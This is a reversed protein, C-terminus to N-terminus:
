GFEIYSQAALLTAANTPEALFAAAVIVIGTRLLGGGSSRLENLLSVGPSLM